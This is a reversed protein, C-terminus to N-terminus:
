ETVVVIWLSLCMFTCIFWAFNHTVKVGGIKIGLDDILKAICLFESPESFIGTSLSNRVSNLQRSVVSNMSVCMYVMYGLDSLIIMINYAVFVVGHIELSENQQILKHIIYLIYLYMICNMGCVVTTYPNLTREIQEMLYYSRLFTTRSFMNYQDALSDELSTQIARLLNWVSGRVICFLFSFHSMSAIVYLSASTRTRFLHFTTLRKVDDTKFATENYMLVIYILVALSIVQFITVRLFFLRSDYQVSPLFAEIQYRLYRIRLTSGLYIYQLYSVYVMLQITVSTIVFSHIVASSGIYQYIRIMYVINFAGICVHATCPALRGIYMFLSEHRGRLLLLCLFKNKSATSLWRDVDEDERVSTIASNDLGIEVLAGNDICQKAYFSGELTSIEQLMPAYPRVFFGTREGFSEFWM